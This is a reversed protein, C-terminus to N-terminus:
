KDADNILPPKPSLIEISILSENQITPSNLRLKAKQRASYQVADCRCLMLLSSDNAYPATM